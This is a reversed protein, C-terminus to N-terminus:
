ARWEPPSVSAGSATSKWPRRKDKDDEIVELQIGSPHDFRIYKQGFREQIGSNKVKHHNLHDLWFKTAGKPVSYATTQVQGSGQRGRVRGYPFTTYVSGSEADANAYYLHYHAYRGDFLVTQKIMRQGFIQTQFDIDEQAGAVCVTM